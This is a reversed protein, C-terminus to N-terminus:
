SILVDINGSGDFTTQFKTYHGTDFDVSNWTWYRHSGGLQATSADSNDLSVITGDTARFELTSFVTASVTGSLYFWLNNSGAGYRALTYITYGSYTTPSISGTVTAFKGNYSNGFADNYSGQTVTHTATWSSAGYFDGLDIAGSAISVLGRVDTDNLSVTTGSTAGLEQHIDNLSIAGSSQLPM